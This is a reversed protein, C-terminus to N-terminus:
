VFNDVFSKKSKTDNRSNNSWLKTAYSSLARLSDSQCGFTLNACDALCWFLDCFTRPEIRATTAIKNSFKNKEERCLGKNCLKYSKHFVPINTPLQESDTTRIKTGLKNNKAKIFICFGWMAPCMLPFLSFLCLYGNIHIVPIIKHSIRTLTVQMSFGALRHSAKWKIPVTLKM